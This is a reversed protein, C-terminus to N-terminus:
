TCLSPLTQGRWGWGLPLIPASSPPPPDPFPPLASPTPPQGEEKDVTEPRLCVKKPCTLFNYWHGKAQCVLTIGVPVGDM